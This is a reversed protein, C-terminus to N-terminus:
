HIFVSLGWPRSAFDLVEITDLEHHDSDTRQKNGDEDCTRRNGRLMRLREGCRDGLARDSQVELSARTQRPLPPSM